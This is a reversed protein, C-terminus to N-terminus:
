DILVVVVVVVVIKSIRLFAENGEMGLLVHM